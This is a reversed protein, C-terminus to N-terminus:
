GETCFYWFCVSLSPVPPWTSLQQAGFLSDDGHSRSKRLCLYKPKTWRARPLNSKRKSFTKTKRKGFYEFRWREARVCHSPFFVPGNSHFRSRRFEEEDKRGRWDANDLAESIHSAAYKLRFGGTVYVGVCSACTLMCLDMWVRLLYFFITTHINSCSLSPRSHKKRIHKAQFSKFM